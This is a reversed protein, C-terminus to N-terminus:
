APASDDELGYQADWAAARALWADLLSRRFWEPMDLSAAAPWEFVPDNILVIIDDVVVGLAGVAHLFAEQSDFDHPDPLFIRTMGAAYALM